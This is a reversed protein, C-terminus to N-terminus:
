FWLVSEEGSFSPAPSTGVHLILLICHQYKELKRLNEILRLSRNLVIKLFTLKESQSFHVQILNLILVVLTSGIM